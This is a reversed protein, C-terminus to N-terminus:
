VGDLLFQLGVLGPELGLDPSISRSTLAWIRDMRNQVWAAHGGQKSAVLLSTSNRVVNREEHTVAVSGLVAVPWLLYVPPHRHIDVLPIKTLGKQLCNSIQLNREVSSIDPNTKHLLIQIALYCLDLSVDDASNHILVAWHSLQHELDRWTRIEVDVLPWSLRSLKTVDSILLFFKYSVPLITQAPPPQLEQEQGQGQGRGLDLLYLPLSLECRTGTLADLLPDFLMMLSAHYLFSEICIRDFVM